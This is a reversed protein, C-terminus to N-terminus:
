HTALPSDPLSSYSIHSYVLTQLSEQTEQFVALLFVHTPIAANLKPIVPTFLFTIHVSHYFSSLIYWTSRFYLGGLYDQVAQLKLEKSYSKYNKMLFADEGMSEYNRIWQQVTSLSVNLQEALKRQSINGERYQMVASIKDQASLEKKSM